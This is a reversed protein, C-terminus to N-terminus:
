YAIGIGTVYKCVIKVYKYVTGVYKYVMGVYQNVYDVYKYVMDVHKNILISTKKIVFNIYHEDKVKTDLIPTEQLESLTFHVNRTENRMNHINIYRINNDNNVYLTEDKMETRPNEMSEKKTEMTVSINEDQTLVTEDKVKSTQTVLCLSVLALLTLGLLTKPLTKM